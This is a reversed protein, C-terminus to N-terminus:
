AAPRVLREPSRDRRRSEIEFPTWVMWAALVPMVLMWFSTSEAFLVALWASAVV